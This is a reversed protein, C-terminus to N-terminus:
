ARRRTMLARRRLGAVRLRWSELRAETLHSLGILVGILVFLLTLKTDM